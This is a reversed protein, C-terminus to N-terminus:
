RVVEPIHDVAHLVHEALTRAADASLGSHSEVAAAALRLRREYQTGRSAVPAATGTTPGSTTSASM